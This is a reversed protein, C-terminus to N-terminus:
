HLWFVACRSGCEFCGCGSACSRARWAATSAAIYYGLVKTSSRVFRENCSCGRQAALARTSVTQFGIYAAAGLGRAQVRDVSLPTAAPSAVKMLEGDGGEFTSVMYSLVADVVAPSLLSSRSLKQKSVFSGPPQSISPSLLAVNGLLQFGEELLKKAVELYVVDAVIQVPLLYLLPVCSHGAPSAPCPLGSSAM